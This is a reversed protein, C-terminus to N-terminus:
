GIPVIRDLELLWLERRPPADLGLAGQVAEGYLTLQPAYHEVLAAAGEEDVGDSKFDAVVPAGTEPDRYVLDIAGTAGDLPGEERATPEALLLPLERAVVHPRLAELHALLRSGALRELRAEFRALAADSATPLAREFAARAAGRWREPAATALPALELALHLATGRALAEQRVADVLEPFRPSSAPDEDDLWPAELEAIETISALRRRSQRREAREREQARLALTADADSATAARTRATMRTEAATTSPVPLIRWLVGHDDSVSSDGAAALEDRWQPAAPVRGGFLEALTGAREPTARAGDAPLAGVLVLRRVARTMGVYLLRVQEAGRIREDLDRAPAFGPTPAGFLRYEWRGAVREAAQAPATRHAGTGQHLGVLYVEEFELGKATHLTMVRVANDASELPRGEAADAGEAVTRRLDGLVRHPAEGAELREGLDRFFRDLNALRHAGQWRAAAALEPAFAARLRDVWLLADEQDFAARRELLAALAARLSDPWSAVRELGAVPAPITALASDVIADLEACPRPM